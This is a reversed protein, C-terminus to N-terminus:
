WQPKWSRQNNWPAFLFGTEWNAHMCCSPPYCGLLCRGTFWLPLKMCCLLFNDTQVSLSETSPPPMSPHKTNKLVGSSGHGSSFCWEGLLKWYCLGDNILVPQLGSLGSQTVTIFLHFLWHAAHLWSLLSCIMLRVYNILFHMSM